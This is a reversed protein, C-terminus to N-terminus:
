KEHECNKKVRYIFQTYYRVLAEAEATTPVGLAELDCEGDMVLELREEGYGLIM